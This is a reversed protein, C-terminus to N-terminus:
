KPMEPSDKSLKVATGSAVMFLMSKGKGSFESYDLDVGIVADAGVKGAERKLESLCTQRAKRLANQTTESRGGFTDSFSAFFDSFLNLGYVCESTIIEIIEKVKRGEIMPATTLIIHEFSNASCSQSVVKSMPTKFSIPNLSLKQEQALAEKCICKGSFMNIEEGCFTCKAM